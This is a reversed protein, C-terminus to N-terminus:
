RPWRPRDGGDDIAASQITSGRSCAPMAFQDGDGRDGSEGADHLGAHHDVEVDGAPVIRRGGDVLDLLDDRGRRQHAERRDLVAERVEILCGIASSAQGRVDVVQRGVDFVEAEHAIRAVRGFPAFRAAAAGPGRRGARQGEGPFFDGREADFAADAVVRLPHEDEAADDLRSDRMTESAVSGLAADIEGGRMPAVTMGSAPSTHGPRRSRLTSRRKRMASAAGGGCVGHRGVLDRMCRHHGLPCVREMCPQCDLALSLCTEREYHTEVLRPDTPGFLTVVPREFAIGLYRPGSDTTVLLRARRICAKTLGIPLEASM